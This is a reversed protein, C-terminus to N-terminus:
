TLNELRTKYSSVRIREEIVKGFLSSLNERAEQVLEEPVDDAGVTEEVSELVRRSADIFLVYNSFRAFYGTLAINDPFTSLLGRVIEIGETTDQEIIELEQNIQAISQEIDQPISM